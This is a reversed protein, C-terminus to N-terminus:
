ILIMPQIERRTTAYADIVLTKESLREAYQRIAKFPTCGNGFTAELFHRNKIELRSITAYFRSEETPRFAPQREVAKIELGNTEAFKELKM